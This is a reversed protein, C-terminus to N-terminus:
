RMERTPTGAAEQLPFNPRAADTRPPALTERWLIFLGSAVIIAGGLWTYRDPVEAWVVYGAAAAWLLATYEFPVIVAVPARQYAANIFVIGLGGFVGCAFFLAWDVVGPPQWGSM